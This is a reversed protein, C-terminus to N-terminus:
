RISILIADTVVARHSMGPYGNKAAAQVKRLISFSSEQVPQVLVAGYSRAKMKLRMNRVTRRTIIWAPQLTLAAIANLWIPLAIGYYGSSLAVLQYAIIIPALASPLSRLIFSIGPPLSLMKTQPFDESETDLM